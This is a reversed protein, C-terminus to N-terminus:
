AKKLCKKGGDICFELVKIAIWTKALATFFFPIALMYCKIFGNISIPYWCLWCIYNTIIWYYVNAIIIYKDSIMKLEKELDLNLIVIKEKM